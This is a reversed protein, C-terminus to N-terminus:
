VKHGTEAAYRVNSSRIIAQIHKYRLTHTDRYYAEDDFLVQM